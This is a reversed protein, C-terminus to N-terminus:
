IVIFRKAKSQAWCIVLKPYPIQRVKHLLHILAVTAMKVKGYSQNTEDDALCYSTERALGGFGLGSVLIRKSM